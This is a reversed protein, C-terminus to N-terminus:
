PALKVLVVDYEIGPSTLDAGGWGVTGQFHGILFVNRDADTAVAILDDAHDGGFSRSWLPAGESDLKAVWADNFAVSWFNTNGFAISGQMTGVMVVNDDADVTLGGVVQENQADGYRRAWRLDGDPAFRILLIDKGGASKIDGEGLDVHDILNTAVVVDGNKAIALTASAFGHETPGLLRQWIGHGGKSLKFLFTQPLQGFALLAPPENGIALLGNFTGAVYVDGSGDIAIAHAHMWEQATSSDQLVWVPQGSAADFAVVFLSYYAEAHSELPAFGELQITGTFSGTVVVRGGRAAVANIVTSGTGGIVAGWEHDGEPSYRAVFGALTDSNGILESGATLEGEFQGAVIVDDGDVAVANCADATVPMGNAGFRKSWLHRGNGDLKALYGDYPATHGLAEGGFDITGLNHGCAYVNGHSDLAIASGRQGSADGYNASWVHNGTYDDCNNEDVRTPAEAPYIEVNPTVEGVCPGWGSQDELCQHTGAHCPGIGETGDAGTYCPEVANAVCVDYPHPLDFEAGVLDACGVVPCVLVLAARLLGRRAPLSV